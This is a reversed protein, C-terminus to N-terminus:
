QRIGKVRLNQVKPLENLEVFFSGLLDESDPQRYPVASTIRNWLQIELPCGFANEIMSQDALDLTLLITKKIDFSALNLAKMQPSQIQHVGGRSEFKNENLSIFKSHYTQGLFRFKLFLLSAKGKGGMEYSYDLLTQRDALILEVFNLALIKKNGAESEKKPQKLSMALSSDARSNFDPGSSTAHAQRNLDMSNRLTVSKDILTTALNAPKQDPRAGSTAFDTGVGGSPPKAVSVQNPMRTSGSFLPRQSNHHNLAIRLSLAGMKQKYDDLIVFEGDIGNNKTLLHLLPVRVYGLTIFDQGEGMHQSLADSSTKDNLGDCHGNIYHRIEFVARKTKLYDFIKTDMQVQVQHTEQFIPNLSIFLMRTSKKSDPFRQMLNEDEDFLSSLVVLNMGNKLIHTLIRRRDVHTETKTRPATEEMGDFVTSNIKAFHEINQISEKLNAVKEIHCSLLANLPIKRNIYTERQM